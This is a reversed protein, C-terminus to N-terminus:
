NAIIYREKNSKAGEFNYKFYGDFQILNSTCKLRRAFSLLNGILKIRAIM